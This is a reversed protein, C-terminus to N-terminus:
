KRRRHQPVLARSAPADARDRLSGLEADGLLPLGEELMGKRCTKTFSVWDDKPKGLREFEAESLLVAVPKGRRTIRVAQGAEAQYLLEAFQAKAEAVSFAGESM